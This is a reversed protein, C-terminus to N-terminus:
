TQRAPQQHRDHTGQVKEHHTQLLIDNAQSIREAAITFVFLVSAHGHERVPDIPKPTIRKLHSLGFDEKIEIPITAKHKLLQHGHAAVQRAIFQYEALQLLHM